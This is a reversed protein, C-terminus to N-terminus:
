RSGASDAAVGEGRTGSSADSRFLVVVEEADAYPLGFRAVIQDVQSPVCYFEGDDECLECSVGFGAMLACVEDPDDTGLEAVVAVGVDLTTPSEEAAAAFRSGRPM